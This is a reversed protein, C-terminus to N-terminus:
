PQFIRIKVYLFFSEDETHHGKVSMKFEAHTGSASLSEMNLKPPMRVHAWTSLYFTQGSKSVLHFTMPDYFSNPNLSQIDFVVTGFKM